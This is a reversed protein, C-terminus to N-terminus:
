YLYEYFFEIKFIKGENNRYMVMSGESAFKKATPQYSSYVLPGSSNSKDCSEENVKSSGPSIASEAKTVTGEFYFTSIFVM